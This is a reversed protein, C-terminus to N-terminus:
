CRCTWTVLGLDSPCAALGLAQFRVCTTPAGSRWASPTSSTMPTPGLSATRSPPPPRLESWRTARCHLVCLPTRYARNPGHKARATSSLSSQMALPLLRAGRAELGLGLIQVGLGVEITIRPPTTDNQALVRVDIVNQVVVNPGARSLDVDLVKVNAKSSSPDPPLMSPTTVSASFNSVVATKTDFKPFTAVAFTAAPLNLLGFAFADLATQNPFTGAIAQWDTPFWVQVPPPPVCAGPVVAVCLVDSTMRCRLVQKFPGAALQWQALGDISRLRVPM